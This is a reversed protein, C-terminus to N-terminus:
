PTGARAAQVERWRERGLLAGGIGGITLGVLAGFVAGEARTRPGVIARPKGEPIAGLFRGTRSCLEQRDLSDRDRVHGRLPGAYDARGLVADDPAVLAMPRM